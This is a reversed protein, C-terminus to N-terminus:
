SCRGMPRGVVAVEFLRALLTKAELGSVLEDGRCRREYFEYKDSSGRRNENTCFGARPLICLLCINMCFLSIITSHTQLNNSYRHRMSSAPVTRDVRELSWGLRSEGLVTSGFNDEGTRYVWQFIGDM